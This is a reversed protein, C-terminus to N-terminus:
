SICFRSANFSTLLCIDDDDKDDDDNDGVCVSYKSQQYTGIVKIKGLKMM